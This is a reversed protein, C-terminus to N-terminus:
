PQVTKATGNVFNLTHKARSWAVYHINEEERTQSVNASARKKFSDNLVHVTSWELGKAKHVTSCKVSPKENGDSDEFLETIKASIGSVSDCTEALVKLTEAQDTVYDVTAASNFGTAKAIRAQLWTELNGCFEVIDSGGVQKVVADLAYGIDKGEIRSTVGRRIFSLCTAMLPANTRSLIADGVKATKTMEEYGRTNIEGLPSDAHFKFDPVLSQCKTVISQACRRSVTMPYVTAKLKEVMDFAGNDMAGRWTYIQQRDDFLICSQVGQGLALFAAHQVPNMDQFEDGLLFDAVPKIWQNVVPIWTQDEWSIQRFKGMPRVLALPLTKTALSVIDQLPYKHKICDEIGYKLAIKMAQEETPVFPFECKLAGILKTVQNLPVGKCAADISNVRNAEAWFGKAQCFGWHSTVQRNCLANFTVSEGRSDSIRSEMERQGKKMFQVYIWSKHPTVSVMECGTQSKGTGARACFAFNGNGNRAHEIGKVQEASYTIAKM